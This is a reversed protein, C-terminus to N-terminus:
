TRTALAYLVWQLAYSFGLFGVEIAEVGPLPRTEGAVAEGGGVARGPGNEVADGISLDSADFVGDSNEDYVSFYVTDDVLLGGDGDIGGINVCPPPEAITEEIM